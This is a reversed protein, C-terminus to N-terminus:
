SPRLKITFLYVAKTFFSFCKRCLLILVDVIVRARLNAFNSDVADLEPTNSRRVTNISANGSAPGTTDDINQVTIANLDTM